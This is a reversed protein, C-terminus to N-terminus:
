FIASFEKHYRELNQNKLTVGKIGIKEGIQRVSTWEQFKVGSVM